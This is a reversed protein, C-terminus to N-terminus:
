SDQVVTVRRDHVPVFDSAPEEWQCAIFVRRAYMSTVVIQNTNWQSVTVGDFTTLVQGYTLPDGSTVIVSFARRKLGHTYTLIGNAPLSVPSLVTRDSGVILSIGGQGTASM